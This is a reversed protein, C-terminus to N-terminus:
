ALCDNISKRLVRTTEEISYKELVTKRANTKLTNYTEINCFLHYVSKCYENKNALIGNYNNTIIEEPGGSGTIAAVPITCSMAEIMVMGFSETSSPLLLIHHNQYFAVLKTQHIFGLFNVEKKLDLTSIKEELSKFYLPDSIPGIINLEAKKNNSKFYVLTDIAIEIQKTKNIRGVFLLKIINNDIGIKPIFINTDIGLPLVRIDFDAFNQHSLIIQKQTETHVILQTANKYYQYADDSYSMNMGGIMSIYPIKLRILLHVLKFVYKGGHGSTNIILLDPLQKQIKNYHFKSQQNRWNKEFFSNISLQFFRKLIGDIKIQKYFFSKIFYDITILYNNESQIKKLAEFHPKSHSHLVDDYSLGISKPTFPHLLSITKL